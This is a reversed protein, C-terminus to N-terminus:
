DSSGELSPEVASRLHRLAYHLRSKVTGAGVGTRAAIQDVTLDFYFRLVVIERHDPSLTRLATGLAERRVIAEAQDASALNAGYAPASEGDGTPAGADLSLPTRRRARLRDRCTNVLIRDFWPEFRAPDRLASWNRWAQEFADQTADQADTADHLIARALRYAADLHDDALRLFAKARDTAPEAATPRSDAM